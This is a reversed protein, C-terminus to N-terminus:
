LFGLSSLGSRVVLTDLRGGTPGIVLSLSGNELLGFPFGVCGFDAPLFFSVLSSMDFGESKLDTDARKSTNHRTHNSHQILHLCKSIHRIFSM